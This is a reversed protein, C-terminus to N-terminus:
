GPYPQSHSGSKGERRGRRAFRQQGRGSSFHGASLPDNKLRNSQRRGHQRRGGSRRGSQRDASRRDGAGYMPDAPVEEHSAAKKQRNHEWLTDLLSALLVGGFVALSHLPTEQRAPLDDSTRTSYGDEKLSWRDQGAHVLGTGTGSSVAPDPRIESYLVSSPDEGSQIASRPCAAACQLCGDCLAPDIWARGNVMSIAANPCYPRCVGCGTCLTTNVQIV